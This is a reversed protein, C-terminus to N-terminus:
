PVHVLRLITIGLGAAVHKGPGAQVSDFIIPAHHSHKLFGRVKVGGEIENRRQTHLDLFVGAPFEVLRPERQRELVGILEGALVFDFNEGPSKLEVMFSQQRAPRAEHFKEFPRPGRPARLSQDGERRAIPAIKLYKRLKRPHVFFPEGGILHDAAKGVFALIEGLAIFGLQPRFVQFHQIQNKGDVALGRLAALDLDAGRREIM